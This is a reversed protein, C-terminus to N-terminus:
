TPEAAAFTLSVYNGLVNAMESQRTKRRGFYVATIYLLTPDRGVRMSFVSWESCLARAM